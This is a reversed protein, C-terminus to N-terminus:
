SKCKVSKQYKHILLNLQELEPTVATLIPEEVAINRDSIDVIQLIALNKWRLQKQTLKSTKV